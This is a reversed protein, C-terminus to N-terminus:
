GRNDAPIPATQPKPSRYDTLQNLEVDLAQAIDFLTEIDLTIEGTEYKSVSARSQHIMDALQQLTLGRARRFARIRSGTHQTINSMQNEGQKTYIYVKGM